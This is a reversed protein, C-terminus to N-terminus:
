AFGHVTAIADDEETLIAEWGEVLGGAFGEIGTGIAEEQLDAGEGVVVVALGDGSGLAKIEISQGFDDRLAM